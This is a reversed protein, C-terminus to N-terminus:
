PADLTARIKAALDSGGFPKQIFAVEAAAVADQISVDAPHGSTFLVKMEPNKEHLIESLERGTMRPMVIDTLLLDIEQGHEEFLAIAEFGDAAALVTYGYSAIIEAILPRLLDTDEVLLIRESGEPRRAESDPAPRPPAAAADAPSLYIRFTTGIGPESYAYIQGGSQKVIGYVTALGLGTGEVKTTYFPDFIRELTERAMGVGTDTIELLVHRGPQVDIHGTVYATDLDVTSTRIVITGGGPMADRANICLNLLVQQLQNRDVHIPELEPQLQLEIAVDVGVLRRLLDSTAEVEANLDLPEPQLVQQRSFALLQQTLAAAHEAARHIQLIKDRSASGSAEELVAESASRIVTLVNNFDHAVGGALSGIAEMKQSQRLQEELQDRDTLDRIVSAVGALSGDQDFIPSSSVLVQVVSGDKRRMTTEFPAPHDGRNLRERLERLEPTLEAALRAASRGIMEDPTYGFFEEAANNWTLVVDGTTRSFMADQSTAVIAALRRLEAEEQRKATIDQAITAAGIITGRHDRIPSITLSVDIIVGDKRRRKTEFRDTLEGRALREFIEAVETPRDPPLLMSIPKGVAEAAPYGYIREAAGNWSQITGDLSKSIIADSASEVIAALETRRKPSATLNEFLIAVTDPSLPYAAIGFRQETINEDGYQLVGLERPAQDLIIERYTDAMGGEDLSNPFSEGILTGTVAAPDLGIMAVSARNAFRIRLSAADVPDVLQLVYVGLPVAEFLAFLAEEAPSVPRM